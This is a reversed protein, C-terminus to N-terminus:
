VYIKVWLKKQKAMCDYRRENSLNQPSFKKSNKKITPSLKANCQTRTQKNTQQQKM